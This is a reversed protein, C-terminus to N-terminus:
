EDTKVYVKWCSVAILLYIGCMVQMLKLVLEVASFFSQVFVNFPMLMEIVCKLFSKDECNHRQWKLKSISRHFDVM